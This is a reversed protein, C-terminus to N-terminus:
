GVQGTRSGINSGLQNISYAHKQLNSVVRDSLHGHKACNKFCIAANTLQPIQQSLTFGLLQNKILVTKKNFM